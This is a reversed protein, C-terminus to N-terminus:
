SSTKLVSFGAEYANVFSARYVARFFIERNVAAYSTSDFVRFELSKRNGFILHKPNGFAVFGTSAASDSLEPMSDSEIIPYGHARKPSMDTAERFIYRGNADKMLTILDTITPHMM